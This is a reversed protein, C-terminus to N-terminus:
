EYRLAALPDVTTARRAPFYSALVAVVAIVLIVAAFTLPDYSRVGFLFSQILRGLALSVLIGIVLGLGTTRLGEFLILRLVDKPQAGLAMRIAMEHTRQSVSYSIVGFIGVASLILALAAFAWVIVYPFSIYGYMRTLNDQLTSINSVPLESDMSNVAQRVAPVLTLPPTGTRILIEMFPAQDQLYPVFIQSTNELYNGGKLDRVMGVIELPAPASSSQEGYVQTVPVLRRGIPNVNPFYRHALTQDIIAVHVAAQDDGRTFERGELLSARM